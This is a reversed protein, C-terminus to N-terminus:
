KRMLTMTNKINLYMENLYGTKGDYYIKWYDGKNELVEVRAGKPIYEIISSHPSDSSRLKGQMKLTTTIANYRNNNKSTSELARKNEERPLTSTNETINLYLENLYGTKGDYYIKWYDGKNELVEVKAGKPIYKIINSYPSDSSRLKGQMKLTTTIANYRNNNTSTSEVARKNEARPSTSIKETINLYVENLYGIKGDYYVKWYSGKNELVEVKAGKPIYKIINSYPSDSSRLKGETKLTSTTPNNNWNTTEKKSVSSQYSNPETITAKNCKGIQSQAYNDKPNSDLVKQYEDKAVLYNKSAFAQNANKIHDSCWKARTLKIEAIQKDKGTTYKFANNYHTIACDYDSNDFCRDGDQIYNQSNAAIAAVIAFLIIVLRKM